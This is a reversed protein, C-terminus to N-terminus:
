FRCGLVATLSGNTNAFTYTPAFYVHTFIEGRISMFLARHNYVVSFMGRINTSFLNRNGDTADDYTRRYGISPMATLNLLWKRPRLAWNYAYGGMLNYDRYHFRFMTEKVPLLQLMEAPLSSFDITTNDRTFSLGAIWSGANRLQYKSFCYAAAQSYQRHNFFYYADVYFSQTSAGNFPYHKEEIPKYGCFGTIRSGGEVNSYYINASFLSSTFNFNWRSRHEDTHTFLTKANVTYSLGVAMFNISGGLDFYPESIIRVTKGEPFAMLYGQMWNESRAVVKWNKGTSVVYTTDYTNFTRDGWNYVKVLFAPFKPYRISPDNIRFRNDILQRVWGRDDSSSVAAVTDVQEQSSVDPNERGSAKSYLMPMLAFFLAILRLRKQMEIM